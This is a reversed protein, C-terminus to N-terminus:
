RVRYTAKRIGRPPTLLDRLCIENAGLAAERGKTESDATIKDANGLFQSPLADGM